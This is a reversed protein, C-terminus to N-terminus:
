PKHQGVMEARKYIIQMKEIVSDASFEKAKKKNWEGAQMLKEPSELLGMISQAYAQVDDPRRVLAGGQCLKWQNNSWDPSDAIMLDSNGRIASCVIPLGSAMAELMAMPLGEQYSPFIFLDAIKMVELLDTRYGLFHVQDQINLEAALQHLYEQLEGHGCVVYIIREDKMAAVARIISEHNKRKILEGASLLVEKDLPINLEKRKADVDVIVSEVKELDVGAGPIYDLYKAHFKKANKFDEKNMVIQQDTYRSLWKEIMYYVCWNVVPAGKYFHFGHATYIVPRLAAAHAALRGVVGGMPTHCHVLDFQEQSMLQKMQRFVKINGLSYPSRVFDIQHRVVGTGDLRHNDGGYSPMFYNSAYHVEYGMRQLLQVNKMEFQPVFGSVTTVLLAKKM